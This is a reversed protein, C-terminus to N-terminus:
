ASGCPCFCCVATSHCRTTTNPLSASFQWWYRWFPRWTYTSPRNRVREKSIAPPSPRLPLRVSIRALRTCNKPRAAAPCCAVSSLPSPTSLESSQLEIAWDHGSGTRSRFFELRSRSRAPETPRRLCDASVQEHHKRGLRAIPSLRAETTLPIEGMRAPSQELQLNHGRSRSWSLELHCFSGLPDRFACPRWLDHREVPLLTRSPLQAFISFARAM